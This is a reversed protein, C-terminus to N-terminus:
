RRGKECEIVCHTSLSLLGKLLTSTDKCENNAIRKLTKYVPKDKLREVLEDLLREVTPLTDLVEGSLDFNAQEYFKEAREVLHQYQTNAFYKKANSLKSLVATNEM